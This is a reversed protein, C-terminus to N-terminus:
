PGIKPASGPRGFGDDPAPILSVKGRIRPADDHEGYSSDAVVARCAAGAALARAILHAAIQLKTRFEPRGAQWRFLLGPTPSCACRITTVSTPWVTTVTVIGNDTKDYRAWGSGAPM